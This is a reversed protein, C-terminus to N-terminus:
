DNLTYRKITERWGFSLILDAVTEKSESSDEINILDDDDSEEKLLNRLCGGVSVARTKHLQRTLEVLWDADAVLHEEKVSYKLTECIAVALGDQDLSKGKVAKINVVPLYDSRLCQQWLERWRAAKIYYNGSFYASPVLILCHFHPHAKGTEPNRTIELSKIWGVGPFEKLKSLRVFAKTMTAITAKLDVLDCNKVTLTLFVWRHTPYEKIIEPLAQFLRATWKLSRRWQCTPCHRVRCFRAALLKFRQEDNEAKVLGFDLLKSCKEIRDAYKPYISDRYIDEVLDATARHKDWPKDKPSLDTLYSNYLEVLTFGEYTTKIYYDSEMCLPL